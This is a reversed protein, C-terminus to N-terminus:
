QGLPSELQRVYVAGTGSDRMFFGRISLLTAIPKIRALLAWVVDAVFTDAAVTAFFGILLNILASETLLKWRLNCFVLSGIIVVAAAILFVSRSSQKQGGSVVKAIAGYIYNAPWSAFVAVAVSTLVVGEKKPDFVLTALTLQTMWTMFILCVRVTRSVSGSYVMLISYIPHFTWNEDYNPNVL